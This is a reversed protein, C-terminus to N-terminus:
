VCVPVSKNVKLLQRAEGIVKRLEPFQELETDASSGGEVSSFVAEVGTVRSILGVLDLSDEHFARIAGRIDAVADRAERSLKLRKLIAQAQRMVSDTPDLDHKKAENLATELQEELGSDVVTANDRVVVIAESARRPSPPANAYPTLQAQAVRVIDLLPIKVSLAELSRVAAVAKAVVPHTEGLGQSLCEATALSLRGQCLIVEDRISPPAALLIGAKALHEQVAALAIGRQVESSLEDQLTYAEELLDNVPGNIHQDAGEGRYVEARTIAVQLKDPRRSRRSLAIAESLHARVDALEQDAQASRVLSRAETIWEDLVADNLDSAAKEAPAIASVLEYIDETSIDQVLNNAAAMAKKFNSVAQSVASTHQEIRERRKWSAIAEVVSQFYANSDNLGGRKAANLVSELQSVAVSPQTPVDENEVRQLARQLRLEHRRATFADRTAKALQMAGCSPDCGERECRSVFAALDKESSDIDMEQELESVNISCAFEEVAREAEAQAQSRSIKQVTSQAEAILDELADSDEFLKAQNIATQLSSCIQEQEAKAIANRLSDRRAAVRRHKAHEDAAIRLEGLLTTVVGDTLKQNEVDAAVSMLELLNADSKTVESSGSKFTKIVDRLRKRATHVAKEHRLVNLLDRGALLVADTAELKVAHPDDLAHELATTTRSRLAERICLAIECRRIQTSLASSINGNAKVIDPHASEIGVEEVCIKVTTSLKEQAVRTQSILSDIRAMRAEDIGHQLTQITADDIGKSTMDAAILIDQDYGSNLVRQAGEIAVRLRRLAAAQPRGNRLERVLAKGEDILARLTALDGRSVSADSSATDAAKTAADLAAVLEDENGGGQDTDNRGCKFIHEQLERKLEAIKQSSEYSSILERASRLLQSLRSRGDDFNCPKSLLNQSEVHAVCSILALVDGNRNAADYQALAAELSETSDQIAKEVVLQALVNRATEVVTDSEHLGNINIAVDIADSLLAAKKSSQAAVVASTLSQAAIAARLQKLVDLADVIAADGSGAGSDEAACKCQEIQSIARVATDRLSQSLQHQSQGAEEVDGNESALEAVVARGGNVADALSQLAQRLKMQVNFDSVVTGAEVLLDQLADVDKSVEIEDIKANLLDVCKAAASPDRLSARAAVIAAQMDSRASAIREAERRQFILGRCQDALDDLHADRLDESEVRAITSMFEFLEIQNQEYKDMAQRLTDSALELAASRVIQKLLAQAEVVALDEGPLGANRASAIAAKLRPADEATRIEAVVGQLQRRLLLHQLEGGVARAAVIIAHAESVGQAVAEDACDNVRGRLAAVYGDTTSANMAAMKGAPSNMRPSTRSPVEADRHLVAKADAVAGDVKTLQADQMRTIRQSELWNQSQEILDGLKERHADHRSQAESLLSMLRREANMDAPNSRCTHLQEQFQCRVEGFRRTSQEQDIIQKAQLLKQRLDQSPSGDELDQRDHDAPVLSQSEIHAVCSALDIFDANGAHFLSVADTLSQLSDDIAKEKALDLLLAEAVARTPDVDPLFLDSGRKKSAEVASQLQSMERTERAHECASKLTRQASLTLLQTLAQHASTLTPSQPDVGQLQQTAAIANAIRRQYKQIDRATARDDDKVSNVADEVLIKLSEVASKATRNNCIELIVAEAERLDSRLAADVTSLVRPSEPVVAPWKQDAERRVREIVGRLPIHSSSKRADSIAEQIEQRLRSVQDRHRREAILAKARNVVSELQPDPDLNQSDVNAVAAVLALFKSDGDASKISDSPHFTVVYQSTADAVSAIANQVAATTELTQLLAQAASAVTVSVRCDNSSKSMASQLASRLPAAERTERATVIAEALEHQAILPSLSSSARQANTVAESCGNLLTTQKTGISESDAAPHQRVNASALEIRAVQLSLQKRLRSINRVDIELSKQIGCTAFETCLTHAENVLALLSNTGEHLLEFRDFQALRHAIEHRLKVETEDSSEGDAAASAAAEYLAARLGDATATRDSEVLAARLAELRAAQRSHSDQAKAYAHARALAATLRGDDIRRSEIEAVAHTFQDLDLKSDLHDCIACNVDAIACRVAEDLKLQRLLERAKHLQVHNPPLSEGVDNIASALGKPGGGAGAAERMATTLRTSSYIIALDKSTLKAENLLADPCDFCQSVAYDLDTKLEELRRLVQAGSADTQGIRDLFRKADSLCNLVQSKNSPTIDGNDRTDPLDDDQVEPSHSVDESGQQHQQAVQLVRLENLLEQAERLTQHCDMSPSVGRQSASEVVAHTAGLANALASVDQTEQCHTMTQRLRRVADAIEAASQEVSLLDQAQQLMHELQPNDLGTSAAQVEEVVSQLVGLGGQGDLFQELTHSLKSMLVDVNGWRRMAASLRALFDNCTSFLEQLTDVTDCVFVRQGVDLANSHRQLLDVTKQLAGRDELEQLVRELLAEPTSTKEPALTTTLHRDRWAQPLRLKIDDSFGCNRARAELAHLKHALNRVGSVAQASCPEAMVLSLTQYVENAARHFQMHQSLVGVLAEADEICKLSAESATNVRDQVEQSRSSLDDVWRRCLAVPQFREGEASLTASVDSILKELEHIAGRLALEGLVETIVANADDCAQQLRPDSENAEAVIAQLKAISDSTRVHGARETASDIDALLQQVRNEREEAESLLDLTVKLSECTEPTIDYAEALEHMIRRFEDVKVDAPKALISERMKSLLEEVTEEPDGDSTTTEDANSGVSSSPRRDRGADHPLTETEVSLDKFSEPSKSPEADQAASEVESAVVAAAKAITAAEGELQLREREERNLKISTRIRRRVNAIHRQRSSVISDEKVVMMSGFLGGHVSSRKRSLIDTEFLVNRRVDIDQPMLKCVLEAVLDTTLVADTSKAGTQQQQQQQQQQQAKHESMLLIMEEVGLVELLSLQTHGVSWNSHADFVELELSLLTESLAPGLSRLNEATLSSIQNGLVLDLPIVLPRWSRVDSLSATDLSSTRCVEEWHWSLVSGRGKRKRDLVCRRVVLYPDPDRNGAHPSLSKRMKQTLKSGSEQKLSTVNVNLLLAQRTEAVSLADKASFSIGSKQRAISGQSPLKSSVMQPTVVGQADTEASPTSSLRRQFMGSSVRPTSSFSMRKQPTAMSPSKLELEARPSSPPSERVSLRRQKAPTQILKGHRGDQSNDVSGSSRNLLKADIPHVYYVPRQLRFTEISTFLMKEETSLILQKRAVSIDCSEIQATLDGHLLQTESESLQAKAMLHEAVDHKLRSVKENFRDHEFYFQLIVWTTYLATAIDLAALAGDASLRSAPLRPCPGGFFRCFNFRALEGAAHPRIDSSASSSGNGAIHIDADAICLHRFLVGITAGSLGMACQALVGRLETDSLASESTEHAGDRAYSVDIGDGQRLHESFLSTAIRLGNQFQELNVSGTNRRDFLDFACRVRSLWQREPPLEQRARCQHVAERMLILKGEASNELAKRLSSAAKEVQSNVFQIEQKRRDFEKQELISLATPQSVQNDYYELLESPCEVATEGSSADLFDTQLDARSSGPRAYSRMFWDGGSTIGLFHVNDTGISPLLLQSVEDASTEKLVSKMSGARFLQMPTSQSDYPSPTFEFTGSAQPPENSVASNKPAPTEFSARQASKSPTNTDAVAPEVAEAIAAALEREAEDVSQEVETGSRQAMNAALIAAEAEAAAASERRTRLLSPSALVPATASAAAAHPKEDFWDLRSQLQQHWHQAEEMSKAMLRCEIDGSFRLVIRPKTGKVKTTGFRNQNNSGDSIEVCSRLNFTGALKQIPQRKFDRKTAYYNLFENRAVFYRRQYVGTSNKKQLYGCLDDFPTIDRAVVAQRAKPHLGKSRVSAEDSTDKDGGQNQLKELALELQVICEPAPVAGCFYELQKQMSHANESAPVAAADDTDDTHARHFSSEAHGKHRLIIGRALAQRACVLGLKKKDNRLVKFAKQFSYPLQQAFESKTWAEETAALPAPSAVLDMSASRTRIKSKAGKVKDVPKMLLRELQTLSLQPPAASESAEKQSSGFSLRRSLTPALFLEMVDRDNHIVGAADLLMAVEWPDFAGSADIDFLHLFATVSPTKTKPSGLSGRRAQKKASRREPDQSWDLKQRKEQQSIIDHGEKSNLVADLDAMHAKCVDAAFRKQAALFQPDANSRQDSPPPTEIPQKFMFSGHVLKHNRVEARAAETAARVRRYIVDRRRSAHGWFDGETLLKHVWVAEEHTVHSKSLAWSRFEDRTLFGKAGTCIIHFQCQDTWVVHVLLSLCM